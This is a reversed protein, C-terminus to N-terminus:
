LCIDFELGSLPLTVAGLGARRSSPGIEELGLEPSSEFDAEVGCVVRFFNVCVSLIQEAHFVVPIRRLLPRNPDVFVRPFLWLGSQRVVPKILRLHVFPGVGAAWRLLRTVVDVGDVDVRLVRLAFLLDLLEENWVLCLPDCVREFQQAIFLASRLSISRLRWAVPDARLVSGGLLWDRVPRLQLLTASLLEFPLALIYDIGALSRVGHHRLLRLDM